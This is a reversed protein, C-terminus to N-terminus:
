GRLRGRRRKIERAMRAADGWSAAYRAVGRVGGATVSEGLSMAEGLLWGTVDRPEAHKWVTVRYSAMERQREPPTELVDQGVAFGVYLTPVFRVLLGEGEAWWFLDLDGGSEYAEDFLGGVAAVRRELASRRIIVCAGNGASVRQSERPLRELDVLRHTKGRRTAGGAQKGDEGQRVVPALFDWGETAEMRIRRLFRQHFTVEPRAAVVIDGSAKAVGANAARVYGEGEAVEIIEPLLSTGAMHDVLQEAAARGRRGVAVVVVEISPDGATRQVADLGTGVRIAALEDGFTVTVLSVDATMGEYSKWCGSWRL